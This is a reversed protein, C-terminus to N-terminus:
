GYLTTGSRYHSWSQIVHYFATGPCATQGVDRHGKLTYHPSIMHNDLGCQILQKVTNQAAANPAHNTFDGIVCIAIGNNNYGKTHAGVATWGRVEYANGDEGVMFNYGLDSWGHGQPPDAMYYNQAGRTIQSCKAQDFCESGAGSHHIFVYIPLSGM